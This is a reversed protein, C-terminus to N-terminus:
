ARAPAASLVVVCGRRPALARQLSACGLRLLQLHLSGCSPRAGVQAVRRRGDKGRERKQLLLRLLRGRPATSSSPHHQRSSGGLDPGDARRQLQALTTRASWRTCGLTPIASCRAGLTQESASTASADHARCAPASAADISTPPRAWTSAAHLVKGQSPRPPSPGDELALPLGTPPDKHQPWRASSAGM